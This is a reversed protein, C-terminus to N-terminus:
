RRGAEARSVLVVVSHLSDFDVFPEVQIQKFVETDASGVQTVRGIPIGRPYLSPLEGRTTGATVVSDGERVRFRKDVFDLMLVDTGARGQKLLGEAGTELDVASVASSRDTLLTVRATRGSVAAVRGVLGDATVVPDDVKVGDNSGASIVIEEEYQAPLWGTVAATVFGFDNPYAPPAKYGLLARLEAAERAATKAQVVEQRLQELEAALRENESKADLLGAFWGWGDRFPRVVREAGVQFPRLVTAGVGQADHLGGSPSERFYVTILVLSLLVLCGMLLRRKLATGTRSPYKPAATRQVSSGLM